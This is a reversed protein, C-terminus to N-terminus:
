QFESHEYITVPANPNGRYPLGEATFGTPVDDAVASTASPAATSPPASTPPASTPTRAGCAVVLSMVLGLTVIHRHQM